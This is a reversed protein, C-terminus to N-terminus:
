ESKEADRATRRRELSAKTWYLDERGDFFGKPWNEIEGYSNIKVKRSIAGETPDEQSVFEINVLDSIGEISAEAVRRCFRKIMYESHSEVLFRVGDQARAVFFDALAAQVRPHLHIEPQELIITDGRTARLSEVIIPLIQSVGFGVDPLAVALDGVELEYLSQRLNKPIVPPLGMEALWYNTADLLTQQRVVGVAIRGDAGERIHRLEINNQAELALVQVTFEGAVGIDVGGTDDFQYFRQPQHRLPGLYRIRRWFPSLAARSIELHYHVGILCYYAIQKLRDSDVVVEAGPESNAKIKFKQVDSKLRELWRPKKGRVGLRYGEIIDVVKDFFVNWTDNFIPRVQTIYPGTIDIRVEGFIVKGRATGLAKEADPSVFYRLPFSDTARPHLTSALDNISLAYVGASAQVESFTIEAGQVGLKWESMVTSLEEKLNAESRLCVALDYAFLEERGSELLRRTRMDIDQICDSYKGDVIWRFEIRSNRDKGYVTESWSGLRTLEGNFLLPQLPADRLLRSRRDIASQKILLMSKLISSKGSSNAGCLVTIPSLDILGSDKFAKFNILQYKAKM